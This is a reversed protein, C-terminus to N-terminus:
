LLPVQVRTPISQSSPDEAYMHALREMLNEDRVPMVLGPGSRPPQVYWVKRGISLTMQRSSQSALPRVQMSRALTAPIPDRARPLDFISSKSERM